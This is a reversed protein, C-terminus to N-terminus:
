LLEDGPVGVWFVDSEGVGPGEQHDTLQWGFRRAAQRAGHGYRRETEPPPNIRLPSPALYTGPKSVSATRKPLKAYKRKVPPISFYLSM